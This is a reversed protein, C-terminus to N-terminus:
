IVSDYTEAISRELFAEIFSEHKFTVNINESNINKSVKFPQDDVDYGVIEKPHGKLNKLLVGEGISPELILHDDVNGLLSAMLKNLDTANTFHQKLAKIM